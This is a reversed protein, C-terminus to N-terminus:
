ENQNSLAIGSISGPKFCCPHAGWHPLHPPGGELFFINGNTDKIWDLSCAITKPDINIEPCKIPIPVNTIIKESLNQVTEIDQLVWNEDEPLSRQLYYNSVGVVKSGEIFVRYEIPYGNYITANIWPRKLVQVFREPYEFLIDYARPDDIWFTDWFSEKWKTNGKSMEYKLEMGACCDWRIITNKEKANKIQNFGRVLAPAHKEEDFRLLDHMPFETIVEIPVYPVHSRNAVDIWHRLSLINFGCLNELIDRYSKSEAKLQEVDPFGELPANKESNM